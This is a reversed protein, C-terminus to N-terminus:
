GPGHLTGHWDVPSSCFMGYMVMEPDTETLISDPKRYIPDIRQKGAACNSMYEEEVQRFRHAMEGYNTLVQKWALSRGKWRLKKGGFKMKAIVLRPVEALMTVRIMTNMNYSDMLDVEGLEIGATPMRMWPLQKRDNCSPKRMKDCLEGGILPQGHIWMYLKAIPLLTPAFCRPVAWHSAELRTVYRSARWCRQLRVMARLVNGKWQPAMLLVYNSTLRTELKDTRDIFILDHAFGEGIPDVYLVPLCASSDIKWDIRHGSGQESAGIWIPPAHAPQDDYPWRELIYSTRIQGLLGIEMTRVNMVRSGQDRRTAIGNDAMICIGRRYLEFIPGYDTMLQGDDTYTKYGEKSKDSVCLGAPLRWIDRGAGMRSTYRVRGIPPRVAAQYADTTEVIAIWKSPRGTARAAKYKAEKISEGTEGNIADGSIMVIHKPDNQKTFAVALAKSELAATDAASARASRESSCKKCLDLACLMRRWTRDDDLWPRLKMALDRPMAWWHACCGAFDLPDYNREDSRCHNPMRGEQFRIWSEHVRKPNAYPLATKKREKWARFGRVITLMARYESIALLSVDYALMAALKAKAGTRRM